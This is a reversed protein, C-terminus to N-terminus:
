ETNNHGCSLLMNPVQQVMATHMQLMPFTVIGVSSAVTSINAASFCKAQQLAATACRSVGKEPAALPKHLRVFRLVAAHDRAAVAEELRQSVVSELQAKASLLLQLVVSSRCCAPLLFYTALQFPILCLTPALPLGCSVVSELQAKASLLLQPIVPFFYLLL